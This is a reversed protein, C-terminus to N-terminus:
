RDEFFVQAQLSHFITKFKMARAVPEEKDTKGFHATHVEYTLLQVEETLETGARCVDLAVVTMRKDFIAAYEIIEISPIIQRCTLSSSDAEKGDVLNYIIMGAHLPSSATLGETCPVAM